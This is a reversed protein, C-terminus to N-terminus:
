KAIVLTKVRKRVTNGESFTLEYVYVGDPLGDLAIQESHSGALYPREDILRTSIGTMDVLRLSVSGAVPLDFGITVSGAAPNPYPLALQFHPDNEDASLSGIYFRSYIQNNTINDDLEDIITIIMKYCGPPYDRISKGLTSYTFKRNVGISTLKEITDEIEYMLENTTCNLIKLSVPVNMSITDIGVCDFLASPQVSTGEPIVADDPPMTVRAVRIDRRFARAFRSVLLDDSPRDDGPVKSEVYLSYWGLGTFYPIKLSDAEFYHKDGSSITQYITDRYMVDRHQHLLSIYIPASVLDSTGSNIYEFQLPIPKLAEPGTSNNVPSHVRLGALNHSLTTDVVRLIVSMTDNARVEDSSLLLSFTVIYSGIPLQALSKSGYKEPFVFLMAGSDVHLKPITSDLVLVTKQDFRDVITARVPVSYSKSAPSTEAKCTISLKGIKGVHKRADPLPNIISVLRVDDRVGVFFTTSVTDDIRNEDNPLVAYAKILYRGSKVLTFHKFNITRTEAAAWNTSTLMDNVVLKGTSDYAAFHLDATSQHKTGTNRFRVSTAVTDGPKKFSGAQPSLISEAKINNSLPTITFTNRATDNTRDVDDSLLAIVAVNYCGPPINRTDFNGAKYPFIFEVAADGILEPITSDAQFVLVNDGCRKIQVRAKVDFRDDVGINSFRGRVRLATGERITTDNPYTVNVARIDTEYRTDWEHCSSNDNENEDDELEAYVCIEYPLTTTPTYDRFTGDRYEGSTWNYIYETDRYVITGQRSITAVVRVNTEDSTGSNQFEARINTPVGLPIRSNPPPQLIQTLTINHTYQALAQSWVLMVLLGIIVCEVKRM